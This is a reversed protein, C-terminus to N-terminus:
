MPPLLCWGDPQVTGGEAEHRLRRALESGLPIPPAGGPPMGKLTSDVDDVFAHAREDQAAVDTAYALLREDFEDTELFPCATEQTDHEETSSDTAVAPNDSDTIHHRLTSELAQAVDEEDLVYRRLLDDVEASRPLLFRQQEQNATGIYAALLDQLEASIHPRRGRPPNSSGQPKRVTPEALYSQLVDDLTPAM